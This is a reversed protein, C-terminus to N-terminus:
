YVEDCEYFAEFNNVFFRGLYEFGPAEPPSQGRSGRVPSQGPGAPSRLRDGSGKGVNTGWLVFDQIRRQYRNSNESVLIVM